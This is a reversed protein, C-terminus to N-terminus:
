PSWPRCGTLPAPLPMVAVVWFDVFHVHPLQPALCRTGAAPLPMGRQPFHLVGSRQITSAFSSSKWSTTSSDLRGTSTSTHAGHHPGQRITLGARSFSAPSSAPLRLSTLTLASSLGSTLRRNSTWDIGVSTSRSWPVTTPLCIPARGSCRSREQSSELSGFPASRHSGARRPDPGVRVELEDPRHRRRGLAHAGRAHPLAGGPDM